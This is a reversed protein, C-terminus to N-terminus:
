KRTRFAFQIKGQVCLANQHCDKYQSWYNNKDSLKLCSPFKQKILWNKLQSSLWALANSYSFKQKLLYHLILQFNADCFICIPFFHIRSRQTGVTTWAIFENLFWHFGSQQNKDRKTFTSSGLWISMIPDSIQM